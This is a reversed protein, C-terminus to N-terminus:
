FIYCHHLGGRFITVLHKVGGLIPFFDSRGGRFFSSKQNIKGSKLPIKTLTKRIGRSNLLNSLGWDGFNILVFNEVSKKFIMKASKLPIKTLKEGGGRPNFLYKLLGRFCTGVGM